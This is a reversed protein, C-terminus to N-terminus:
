LDQKVMMVLGLHIGSNVWCELGHEGLGERESPPCM